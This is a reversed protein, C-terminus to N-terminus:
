KSEDRASEGGPQPRQELRFALVYLTIIAIGLGGCGLWLVPVFPAIIDLDPIRSVVQVMIMLVLWGGLLLLRSRRRRAKEEQASTMPSRRAIPTRTAPNELYSQLKSVAISSVRRGLATKFAGSVGRGRLNSSM